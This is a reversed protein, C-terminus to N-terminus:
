GEFGMLTRRRASGREVRTGEADALHFDLRGPQSIWGAHSM